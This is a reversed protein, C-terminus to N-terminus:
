RAPKAPKDAKAVLQEISLGEMSLAVNLNAVVLPDASARAAKEAHARFIPAYRASQAVDANGHMVPLTAYCAGVHMEPDDNMALARTILAYGPVGEQVALTRAVSGNSIVSTIYLLYGADFLAAARDKETGKSLLARTTLRLALEDLLDNKLERAFVARRLVDMRVVAHATHDDLLKITTEAVKDKALDKFAADLSPANDGVEFASCLGPPGPLRTPLAAVAGALLLCTAVFLRAPKM